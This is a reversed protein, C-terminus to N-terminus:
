TTKKSRTKKPTKLKKDASELQSVRKELEEIRALCTSALTKLANVEDRKALEMDNIKSELKSRIATDVEESATRVIGITGTALEALDDLIPNTSTMLNGRLKPTPSIRCFVKIRVMYKIDEM